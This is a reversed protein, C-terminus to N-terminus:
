LNYKNTNYKKENNYIEIEEPTAIREIKNQYLAKREGSSTYGVYILVDNTIYYHESSLKYIKNKYLVYDIDKYKQKVFDFNDEFRKLYKM